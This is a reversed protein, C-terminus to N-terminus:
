YKIPVNSLARLAVQKEKLARQLTACAGLQRRASTKHEHRGVTVAARQVRAGRAVRMVGRLRSPGHADLRVRHAFDIHGAVLVVARLGRAREDVEVDRAVRVLHRYAQASAVQRTESTVRCACLKASASEPPGLTRCGSASPRLPSCSTRDPSSPPRRSRRRRRRPECILVCVTCVYLHM